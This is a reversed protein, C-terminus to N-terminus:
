GLGARVTASQAARRETQLASIAPPTVHGPRRVHLLRLSSALPHPALSPELRATPQLEVRREFGALEAADVAVAIPDAARVATGGLRARLPRAARSARVAVTGRV